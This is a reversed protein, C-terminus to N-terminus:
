PTTPAVIGEGFSPERSRQKYVTTSVPRYLITNAKDSVTFLKDQSFDRSNLVSRSQALVSPKKPMTM